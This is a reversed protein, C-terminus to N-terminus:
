VHVLRERRDRVVVGLRELQKMVLPRNCDSLLGLYGRRRPSGRTSFGAMSDFIQLAAVSPISATPRTMSTSAPWEWGGPNTSTPSGSADTRSAYARTVAASFLQPKKMGARKMTTLREGASTRLSPEANSRGIAIPM